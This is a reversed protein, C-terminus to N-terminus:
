RGSWSYQYDSPPEYERPQSGPIGDWFIKTVAVHGDVFSVVTRADAYTNAKYPHWAGGFFAPQEAVLVAKTPNSIGSLPQGTIRPISSGDLEYGNFTYSTFAHQLQMFVERDSPCVFVKETPSAPGDLGLHGKVLQKYYAGVGNPYPNPDPLIPLADRHDDAYAHFALNIQGLNSRCATRRAHEKARAVAPLLLAALIAIVAIVVLLEVLTFAHRCPKM